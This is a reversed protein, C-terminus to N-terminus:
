PVSQSLPRQGLRAVRPQGTFGVVGRPGSWTFTNNNNNKAAIEAGVLEIGEPLRNSRWAKVVEIIGAVEKLYVETHSARQIPDPTRERTNKWV